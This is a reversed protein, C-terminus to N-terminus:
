SFSSLAQLILNNSYEQNSYWLYEELSTAYPYVLDIPIRGM